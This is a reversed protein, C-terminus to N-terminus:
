QACEGVYPYTVFSLYGGNGSSCLSVRLLEAEISCLLSIGFAVTTFYLHGSAVFNFINYRLIEGVCFILSMGYTVGCKDPDSFM